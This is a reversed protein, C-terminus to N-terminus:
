QLSVHDNIEPDTLNTSTCVLKGFVWMLSFFVIEGLANDVCM